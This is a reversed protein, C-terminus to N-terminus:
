REMLLDMVIGYCEKVLGGIRNPPRKKDDRGNLVYSDNLVHLDVGETGNNM